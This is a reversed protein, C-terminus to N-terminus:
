SHRFGRRHFSPHQRSWASDIAGINWAIGGRKVKVGTKTDTQRTFIAYSYRVGRGYRLCPWVSGKNQRTAPNTAHSSQARVATVKASPNKDTTHSYSPHYATNATTTPPPQLVTLPTTTGAPSQHQKNHDEGGGSKKFLFAM